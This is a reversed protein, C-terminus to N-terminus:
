CANHRVIEKLTSYSDLDMEEFHIGFGSPEHRVVKGKMTLGMPAQTGTLRLEVECETGLAILKQSVVLVGGMSLNASDGEFHLQKGSYSVIIETRFPVRVNKRKEKNEM